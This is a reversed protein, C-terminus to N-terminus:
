SIKAHRPEINVSGNNRGPLESSSGGDGPISTPPSGKREPTLRKEKEIGCKASKQLALKQERVDVADGVVVVWVTDSFVHGDRIGIVVVGGAFRVGANGGIAKDVVDVSNTAVVAIRVELWVVALHSRAVRRASLAELADGSEGYPGIGKTWRTKRM